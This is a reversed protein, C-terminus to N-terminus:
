KDNKTKITITCVVVEPRNVNMNELLEVDKEGLEKAKQYADLDNDAEVDFWKGSVALVVFVRHTM